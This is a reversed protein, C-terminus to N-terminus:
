KGHDFPIEVVLYGLGIVYSVKPPRGNRLVDFANGLEVVTYVAPHLLFKMFKPKLVKDPNCLHKLGERSFEM